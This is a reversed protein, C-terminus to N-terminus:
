WDDELGKIRVPTKMNEKIKDILEKAFEDVQRLWDQEIPNSTDIWREIQHYFSDEKNFKKIVYKFRGEKAYIYVSYNVFGAMNEKGIENKNYIRFKHIGKIVGESPDQKKIVNKPNVFHSNFWKKARLFLESKSAEKVKIAEEYVVYSEADLPLIVREQAKLLISSFSIILALKIALM